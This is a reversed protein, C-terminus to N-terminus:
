ATQRATMTAAAIICVACWTDSDSQACARQQSDADRRRHGQSGATWRL